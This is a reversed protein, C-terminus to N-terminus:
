SLCQRPASSLDVGQYDIASVILLLTLYPLTTIASVSPGCESDYICKATQNCSRCSKNANKGEVLKTTEFEDGLLLNSM